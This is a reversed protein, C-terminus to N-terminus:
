GIVGSALLLLTFLFASLVSFLILLATRVLASRRRLGYADRLQRYMHVPPIIGMAAATVGPPGGAAKVLSLVALLLTMFCLSYTVFVAHDYVHFRRDFPFLLWLFPVSIPILAWSYKYANNQLKYLLLSPNAKAKRYADSLWEPADPLDDSARVIGTEAIGREKMMRMMSAEDRADKLRADLPITSRGAAVAAVRERELAAIDADAKKIGAGLSQQLEVGAEKDMVTVPGGTWSVVAFMAFVSFLFLALPSVFRAREGAVFRRTLAGPRWALLPLTRWIKGEFHLVGHLLDHGFASLTRHVHGAQGCAHCYEGTLVTACNLCNAEQAGRGHATTGDIAGAVIGGTAADMVAEAESVSVGRLDRETERM